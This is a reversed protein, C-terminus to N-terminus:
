RATYKKSFGNRGNTITFTGDRAVSAKLWNGKCDPTDEFNAIMDRSTNHTPDPDLLSLHGQWIGEIGPLAAARAYGNREYPQVKAAAPTTVADANGQAQGLGKKPGNNFVVVQPKIAGLFAPAGAADWSGHRDTQFVTVTGLKNAPCTLEMEQHWDLDILDLFTFRGYSVLLGVVGSNELGASPKREAGACLPNPGGGKLPADIVKENSTVILADAAGVSIHDGAKVATTRGGSATRLNDYWKQNVPEVNDGRSYFRGIPILKSLAPLGGVHDGHYHSIVLHDIKQLGAQKAAAAIRKADRGDTEWGTDILMSEGTPAVILTAAGGEVDIWYIDLNRSQSQPHVSLAVAIVTVLLLMRRM